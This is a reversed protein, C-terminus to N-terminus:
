RCPTVRYGLKKLHALAGENAAKKTKFPGVAFDSQDDSPVWAYYGARMGDDPDDNELTIHIDLKKRTARVLM